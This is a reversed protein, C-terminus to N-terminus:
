SEQAMAYEMIEDDIHSISGMMECFSHRAFRYKGNGIRQLVNLELMEEMLATVKDRSLSSIKSIGYSSAIELIDNADCGNQEKNNHYNYAALLAILYYYDDNGVRLTIFYKERIQEELTEDSLVKKIHSESVVYPPTEDENYGAYDREVAEILKSCYLQLLGPFYNTTGFITSILMETSSDDSFRFGLYSLPVELLERAETSKFPRVTIHGLHTLVSNNSLAKNKDFRVINRLGAVVFKFRGPGINQIDKLADFPRYGVKECSEIFDDAEDLLLLLYPIKKDEETVRLRNRINRSLEDWDETVADTLIGEDLLAASIKRAAAKYDHGKIDVLVARDHNENKDIDKQAMRLLASKGLQRGGYVINVGSASEIDDLEKTRGMFIEQPMVKASEAIYPQYSAFPMTVAMLMRNVATESYHRALYVVAVRDVVVFTKKNYETKTRRALERREPLTLAYDLIVITNQASGIEKFTDILRGADMKGFIVVVRFGKEEAESGFVSIPHKYNSKRGNEPRRIMVHYQQQNGKVTGKYSTQKEVSKVPFGLATMLGRIKDVSLDYSGSPWNELLREAGRSDKNHGRAISSPRLPTNVKGSKDFNVPYEDLFEKLYDHQIFVIGSDFDGANLRNLLDEAAAYNQKEIRVRIQEIASATKEDKEWDPHASIYSALNRELEVARIQADERIKDRMAKLITYFFGYNNTDMAWDYWFDMIQILSEKRNETTNGIQGYSQALELDGIFGDRKDPMNKRVQDIARAIDIHLISDDEFTLPHTTLYRLILEASGYDDQGNFISHLREEFTMLPTEAHDEIRAIISLEDIESVDNFVPLFKEDLLVRDNRLFDIYFYKKTDEDYSGDLRSKLGDLTHLLVNRGAQDQLSEVDEQQLGSIAASIDNILPEKTRKYEVLGADNEDIDTTSVTAVYNCLIMVAREIQNATLARYVGTLNGRAGKRKLVRKGASEWSDDIVADILLHDINETSIDMKSKIYKTALHETILELYTQDNDMIAELFAKIDSGDGFLIKRTEGMRPHFGEDQKVCYKEYFEKAEKRIERLTDEYNERNKQRYDAYFDIGRHHESKFHMLSYAVKQLASSEQLLPLGSLMSYLSRLSYDYHQQDLFFNRLSASLSFYDSYNEEKGFYVSYVNDSNYNYNELPDNLAYALQTYIHKYEGYKKSLAYIYATACYYKEEVLMKIYANDYMQKQKSSLVSREPGTSPTTESYISSDSEMKEETQDIAPLSEIGTDEEEEADAETITSVSEAETSEDDAEDDASLTANEAAEEDASLTANEVAEDDVSLTANEVAEENDGGNNDDNNEEEETERAMILEAFDVEEDTDAKYYKSSSRDYYYICSFETFGAIWSAVTRAHTLNMGIVVLEISTDKFGQFYEKYLDFHEPDASHIGTFMIVKSIEDSGDKDIPFRTFFANDLLLPASFGFDEIGTGSVLELSYAALLRALLDGASIPEKYPVSASPDYKIRLVSSADKSRFAKLGTPTLVYYSHFEDFGNKLIVYESLYGTKVLRDAAAKFDEKSIKCLAASSAPVLGYFEFADKMAFIKSAGLPSSMMEKKFSSASFKKSKQPTIVKMLSDDVDYKISEPDEIGLEKWKDEESIEETEMSSDDSTGKEEAEVVDGSADYDTETEEADATENQTDGTSIESEAMVKKPEGDEAVAHAFIKELEENSDMLEYFVSGNTIGFILDKDFIGFLGTYAIDFRKKPDTEEVAEKLAFYKGLVTKCSEASEEEVNFSSLFEKEKQLAADVDSHTAHLGIVYDIIKKYKDKETLSVRNKELTEDIVPIVAAPEGIELTSYQRVFESQSDSISSLMNQISEKLQEPIFEKNGIISSLQGILKELDRYMVTLSKLREQLDIILSIDSM